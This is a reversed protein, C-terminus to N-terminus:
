PPPQPSPRPAPSGATSPSSFHPPVGFLKCGASSQAMVAHPHLPVGSQQVPTPCISFLNPLVNTARIKLEYSKLDSCYTSRLRSLTTQFIRPLSNESASVAPPPRQILPNHSQKSKADNVAETHIAQLTRKYSVESMFGDQLYKEVSPGYKSSLTEKMPRGYKNKRPGPLRRVVEHSPHALRLASVLFQRSIMNLHDQVPLIEVESHLHDESAAHHCGTIIRLGRNQVTQLGKVNTPKVNTAWVPAFHSFTPKILTNYDAKHNM